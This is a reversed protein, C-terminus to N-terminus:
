FPKTYSWQDNRRNFPNAQLTNALGRDTILFDEVQYELELDYIEQLQSQILTPIM